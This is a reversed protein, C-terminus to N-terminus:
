HAAQDGTQLPLSLTLTREATLTIWQPSELQGQIAYAEGADHYGNSNSDVFIFLSYQGVDLNTILHETKGVDSSVLLRESPILFEADPHAALDETGRLQIRIDRNHPVEIGGAVSLQLRLHAESPTEAQPKRFLKDLFLDISPAQDAKPSSIVLKEAGSLAGHIAIPKNSILEMGDYEYPTNNDYRDTLYARVFYEGRGLYLTSSKSYGPRDPNYGSIMVSSMPSGYFYPNDFAEVQVTSASQPLESMLYKVHIPVAVCTSSQCSVHWEETDSEYCSKEPESSDSSCRDGRQDIPDTLGVGGSDWDDDWEDDTESIHVYCSCLLTTTLAAVSTLTLFSRAHHHIAM